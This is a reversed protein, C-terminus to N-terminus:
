SMLAYSGAGLLPPRTSTVAGAKRLAILLTRKNKEECETHLSSENLSTM